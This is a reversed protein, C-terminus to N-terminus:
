RVDAATAAGSAKPATQWHNLIQGPLSVDAVLYVPWEDKDAPLPKDGLADFMLRLIESTSEYFPTGAFDSLEQAAQDAAETLADKDKPKANALAEAALRVNESLASLRDRADNSATAIAQRYERWQKFKPRRLTYVTGDDFTVVVEGTPLYDIM